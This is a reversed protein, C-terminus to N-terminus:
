QGISGHGLQCRSLKRGLNRRESTTGPSDAEDGLSGTLLPSCLAHLANAWVQRARVESPRNLGHPRSPRESRHDIPRQSRAHRQRFECRRRLTLVHLSTTRRKTGCRLEWGQAPPGGPGWEYSFAPLKPGPRSQDFFSCGRSIELYANIQM